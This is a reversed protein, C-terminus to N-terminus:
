LVVHHEIDTLTKNVAACSYSFDCEFLCANSQTIVRGTMKISCQSTDRPCLAVAYVMSAYCPLTLIM